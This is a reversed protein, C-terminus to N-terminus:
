PQTQAMSDRERIREWWRQLNPTQALLHAEPMQTFYGFVPALHLDALSLTDGALWTQDALLESLAKLATTVAPVAAAVAAEDTTGGQKPVIARQIVITGIAPGYLYSDNLQCIQTMRARAKATDPQLSPGPFAEDIYRTIAFTEYLMFGDHEFAPVKGFPQRRLHEEPMGALFDFEQLQYPVGKELCTLRVSRVYTSYGPGHIIPDAM